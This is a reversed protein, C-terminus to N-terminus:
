PTAAGPSTPVLDLALGLAALWCLADPPLCRVLNSHIVECACVEKSLSGFNSPCM